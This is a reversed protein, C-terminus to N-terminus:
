TEPPPEKLLKQKRNELAQRAPTPLDKKALQEEIRDLDTRNQKSASPKTQIAGGGEGFGQGIKQQIAQDLNPEQVGPPINKPWESSM